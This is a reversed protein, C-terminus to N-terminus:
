LEPLRLLFRQEGLQFQGTREIAVRSVRLWTGNLSRNNELVWRGKPTRLIRAHVPSLMADGAPAIACHRADQGIWQEAQTLFFRQGEGQPTLEVLAPAQGGTASTQWGRTERAPGPDAAAQEPAGEESPGEFRYRRSGLLLEQGKRLVAKGVRIYTGNTSDLDTLFWRYRGKELNRTLSAHRKSMQGDQPVVFDGEGRGIIFEGSRIRVWEGGDPDGDDLACLLAVPPRRLPRFLTAQSGPAAGKVTPTRVAGTAQRIEDFTELQAESAYEEAHPAAGTREDAPQADRPAPDAAGAVSKRGPKANM